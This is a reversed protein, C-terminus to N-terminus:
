YPRNDAAGPHSTRLTLILSDKSIIGIVQTAGLLSYILARAVGCKPAIVEPPNVWGIGEGM